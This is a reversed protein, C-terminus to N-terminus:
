QGGGNNANADYYGFPPAWAHRDDFGIVQYGVKNRNGGYEPLSFMGAITLFKMAGFFAGDEIGRLVADQTAEPLQFFYDVGHESNVRTQLDALGDRVMALEQDRDNGLVTDIFYVVGAERAGPTSDTPMIRAAIADLENAEVESLTQFAAGNLRMQAAQDCAALIAPMSLVLCSNRAAQATVAFFQRRTLAPRTM